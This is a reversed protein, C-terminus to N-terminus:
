RASCTRVSASTSKTSGAVNPDLRVRNSEVAAGDLTIMAVGRRRREPNEVVVHVRQAGSRVWAEFGKWAPPICPDIRLDGEDKSPRPHRSASGGCGRPPARTGPGDAAASGRRLATSTARSSTPSSGTAIRRRPANRARLIPNLLRFIREAREGDGSRPTRGASGRRRTRTSAATRAFARLTRASTDPTTRRATSRRRLVLPRAPRGRARAARRGRAGRARERAEPPTATRATSLVAWSQAISDIRCERSKASGLLSGDDHFARLYWAGDWASAEIRARLADRARAVDDGSRCRRGVDCLAAFRNM